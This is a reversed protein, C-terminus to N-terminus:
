GGEGTQRKTTQERLSLGLTKLIKLGRAGAQHAASSLTQRCSRISRRPFCTIRPNPSRRFARPFANQRIPRGYKQPWEFFGRHPQDLCPYEQAGHHAAIAGAGGAIDQTGSGPFRWQVVHASFTLHTHFDIVPYRARPVQTEKLHLMSAPQYNELALPAKQSEAPTKEAKSDSSSAAGLVRRLGGSLIGMGTTALVSRRSIRSM